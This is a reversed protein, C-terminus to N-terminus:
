KVDERQCGNKGCIGGCSSCQTVTVQHMCGGNWGCKNGGVLIYGCMENRAILGFVNCFTNDNKTM